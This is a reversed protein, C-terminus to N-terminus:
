LVEVRLCRSLPIRRWSKHGAEIRPLGEAVLQNFVDLSFVTALNHEKDKKNHEVTASAEDSVFQGGSPDYTLCTMTRVEKNGTKKRFKVIFPKKLYRATNIADTAEDTTLKPM